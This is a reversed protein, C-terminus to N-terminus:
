VANHPGLLTVSKHYKFGNLSVPAFFLILISQKWNENYSGQLLSFKQRQNCLLSEYWQIKDNLSLLDPLM